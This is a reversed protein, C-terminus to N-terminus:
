EGSQLGQKCGDNVVVGAGYLSQELGINSDCGAENGPGLEVIGADEM